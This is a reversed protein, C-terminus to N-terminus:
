EGAFLVEAFSITSGPFISLKVLKVLSSRTEHGATLCAGYLFFFFMLILYYVMVAQETTWSFFPAAGVITTVYVVLLFFSMSLSFLIPALM